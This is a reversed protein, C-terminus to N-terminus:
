FLKGAVVSGAPIKTVLFNNQGRKGDGVRMQMEPVRARMAIGPQVVRRDEEAVAVVARQRSAIQELVVPAIGGGPVHHAAHM